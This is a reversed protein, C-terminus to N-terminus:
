RLAARQEHTMALLRATVDHIQAATM